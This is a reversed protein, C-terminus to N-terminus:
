VTFALDFGSLVHMLRPDPEFIGHFVKSAVKAGHHRRLEFRGGVSNALIHLSIVWLLEILASGFKYVARAPQRVLEFPDRGDLNRFPDLLPKARSLQRVSARPVVLEFLWLPGSVIGLVFPFPFLEEMLLAIAARSEAIVGFYDLRSILLFVVIWCSDLWTWLRPKWPLSSDERLGWASLM